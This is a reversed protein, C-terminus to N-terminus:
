STLPEIGRIEVYNSPLEPRHVSPERFLMLSNQPLRLPVQLHPAHGLVICVVQEDLEESGRLSGVVM